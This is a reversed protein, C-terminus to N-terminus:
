KTAYRHENLWVHALGDDEFFCYIMGELEFEKGVVISDFKPCKKKYLRGLDAYGEEITEFGTVVGDKPNKADFCAIFM